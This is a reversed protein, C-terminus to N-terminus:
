YKEDIWMSKNFGLVRNRGQEKAKYLAVDAFKIVQYLKSADKPFNATGISITKQIQKGGPLTLPTKEVAARIKEGVIEPASAESINHLIILFEEGGYRITLDQERIVMKLIKALQRLVSDGAQHGEEDNVMKFHDIDAMIFGVQQPERKHLVELHKLYEDMFRRNHCRTLPDKLSQAKTAELLQLSSLIPATEDLYKQIIVIERQTVSWQNRNTTFTFIAGVRGHMVMPLCCRIEMENELGFFPCLHPNNNSCVMEATRRARCLSCDFFVSNHSETINQRSIVPTMRNETSDVKLLNFKHLHFHQQFVYELQKYIEEQNSAGQVDHSYVTLRAMHELYSSIDDLGPKENPTSKYVDALLNSVDGLFDSWLGMITNVIQKIETIEDGRQTEYVPCNTCHKYQNLFICAGRNAPSIAEDGTELYCIKSPEQYVPCEKHSCNLMERCHVPKLNFRESFDNSHSSILSKKIQKLCDRIMNVNWFISLFVLSVGIVTTFFLIYITKEAQSLFAKGDFNIQTTGIEKGDYAMLPVIKTYISKSPLTTPASNTQDPIGWSMAIREKKGTAKPTKEQDTSIILSFNHSITQDLNLKLTELPRTALAFGILQGQYTIPVSATFVIKGSSKKLGAAPQLSTKSAKLLPFEDAGRAPINTQAQFFPKLTPTFIQIQTPSRKSLLAIKELSTFIKDGLLDPKNQRLSKQVDPNISIYSAEELLQSSIHTTAQSLLITFNDIRTQISKETSHHLSSAIAFLTVSAGILLLFGTTYALRARLGWRETNVIRQWLRGSHM